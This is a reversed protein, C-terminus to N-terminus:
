FPPNKSGTFEFFVRRRFAVGQGEFDESREAPKKIEDFL